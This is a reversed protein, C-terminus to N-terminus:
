VLLREVHSTPLVYEIILCSYTEIESSFGSWMRSQRIQAMWTVTRLKLRLRSAAGCAVDPLVAKARILAILKLRLRSAAGCAVVFAARDCRHSIQKLRLRSAAGCAVRTLTWDLIMTELTEIESSFGSWMRSRGSHRASQPSIHKLRLRSAAGCAVPLRRVTYM